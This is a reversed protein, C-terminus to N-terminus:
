SSTVVMSQNFFIVVLVPKTWKVITSKELGICRLFNETSLLM